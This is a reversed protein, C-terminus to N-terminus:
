EDDRLALAPSGACWAHRWKCARGVCGCMNARACALMGVKQTEIHNSFYRWTKLLCNNLARMSECTERLVSKAHENEHTFCSLVVRTLANPLGRWKMNGKAKGKVVVSGDRAITHDVLAGVHVVNDRLERAVEKDHLFAGMDAATAHALKLIAAPTKFIKQHEVTVFTAFVLKKKCSQHLVQILYKEWPNFRTHQPDVLVLIKDVMGAVAGIAAEQDYPCETGRPKIANLLEEVEISGSGDADLIDILNNMDHDSLRESGRNVTARLLAKMEKKDLAGSKDVDADDFKKRIQKELPDKSNPDGFFSRVTKLVDTVGEELPANVGLLEPAQVIIPAHPKSVHRFSALVQSSLFLDLSQQHKVRKWAAQV